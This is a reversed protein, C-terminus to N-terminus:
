ASIRGVRAATRLAETAEIIPDSWDASTRQRFLRASPYWPSDSRERLWRWDANAALLVWCPVGLAGALHVVASDVSIVLDLESILAAMEEFPAIADGFHVIDFPEFDAAQEARPGFQLSYLETDPVSALHALMELHNLSRRADAPNGPNGAWAVGIRLGAKGLGLRQRWHMRRATEVALYPVPGPLTELTVGLLRGLSLLPTWTDFSPAPEDLAALAVSPFSNALLRHLKRDARVIVKAGRAQLSPLFRVFQLTDGFGQEAHLLLSRGALDEGDWRAQSYSMGKAIKGAHRTSFRMEYHPWGETYRGLMLLALGLNLEISPFDPRRRLVQRLPEIAEEYRGMFLLANTLQCLGKLDDSRPEPGPRPGQEAIALRDLEVLVRAFEAHADPLDPKMSLVRHWEAICDEFRWLKHLALARCMRAQVDNPESALAKECADLAEAHRDLDVLVGAVAVLYAACGPELRSAQQLPELAEALRKHRALLLGLRHLADANQAHRQMAHRSRALAEAHWGEKFLM